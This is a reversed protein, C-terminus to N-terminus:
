RHARLFRIEFFHLGLEICPPSLPALPRDSFGSRGYALKNSILPLSSTLEDSVIFSLLFALSDDAFNGILREVRLLHALELTEGWLDAVRATARSRRM